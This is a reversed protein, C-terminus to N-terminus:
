SASAKLRKIVPMIENTHLRKGSRDAFSLQVNGAKDIVFVSPWAIGQKVINGVGYQSILSKDANPIVPFSLGLDAVSMMAHKKDDASIALIETDNAQFDSYHSQIDMLQKACVHCFSGQYFIMVVEKKGKYDSLHLKEGTATTVSFEPAAKGLPIPDLFSHPDVKTLDPTAIMKSSSAPSSGLGPIAVPKSAAETPTNRVLQMVVGISLLALGLILSVKFASSMGKSAGTLASTVFVRRNTQWKLLKTFGQLM